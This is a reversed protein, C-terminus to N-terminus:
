SMKSRFLREIGSQARVDEPNSVTPLTLCHFIILLPNHFNGGYRAGAAQILEAYGVLGCRAFRAGALDAHADVGAREVEVVVANDGAHDGGLVAANGHRVTGTHNFGHALANLFKGHAVVHDGSEERGPEFAFGLLTVEGGHGAVAHVAVGPFLHHAGGVPEGV